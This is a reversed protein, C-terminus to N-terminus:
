RCGPSHGSPSLEPQVMHRRAHAHPLIQCTHAGTVHADPPERPERTSAVSCKVTPNYRLSTSLRPMHITHYVLDVQKSRILDRINKTVLLSSPVDDPCCLHEVQADVEAFCPDDQEAFAGGTTRSARTRVQQQRRGSQDLITPM